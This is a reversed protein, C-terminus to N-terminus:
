GHDRRTERCKQSRTLCGFLRCGSAISFEVGQNAAGHGVEHAAGAQRWGVGVGRARAPGEDDQPRRRRYNDGAAVAHRRDSAAVLASHEDLRSVSVPFARGIAPAYGPDHPTPWALPRALM